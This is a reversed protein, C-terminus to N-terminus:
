NNLLSNRSHKRSQVCFDFQVFWYDYLTKAMAELEANIRQNVRQSDRRVQFEFATDHFRQERMLGREKAVRM